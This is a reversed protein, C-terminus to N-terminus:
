QLFEMYFCMYIYFSLVFSIFSNSVNLCLITGKPFLPPHTVIHVPECALSSQSTSQRCYCMHFRTLSKVDLRICSFKRLKGIDKDIAGYRPYSAILLVDAFKPVPAFSVFSLCVSHCLTHYGMAALLVLKFQKISLYVIVCM